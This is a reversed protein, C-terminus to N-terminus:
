ASKIVMQKLYNENVKKDGPAAYHGEITRPSAGSLEGVIKSPMGNNLAMTIFTKRGWHMTVIDCKRAGDSFKQGGKWFEKQVYTTIKAEKCALRLNDNLDQQQPVRPLKGGRRYLIALAPASWSGPTFYITIEKGGNLSVKKKTTLTLTLDDKVDAAHIRQLDSIRLGTRCSVVFYDRAIALDMPLDATELAILEDETFALPQMKLNRVEWKEFGALVPFNHEKAWSLLTKLRAILKYFTTDKHEKITERFRFPFGSNFDTFSYKGMHVQLGKYVQITKSDKGQETCHKLFATFAQEVTKKQIKGRVLDKYEAFSKDRNDRFLTLINVKFKSLFLNLSAQDIHSAKVTQTKFDWYRPLIHEGTPIEFHELESIKVKAIISVETKRLEGTSNKPHKLYLKVTM